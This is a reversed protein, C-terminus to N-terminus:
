FGGGGGGGGGGGSNGTGTAGGHVSSAAPSKPVVPTPHTNINNLQSIVPAGNIILATAILFYCVKRTLDDNILAFVYLFTGVFFGALVPHFTPQKGTVIGRAEGSGVIVLVTLIVTGNM